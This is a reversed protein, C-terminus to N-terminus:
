QPLFALRGVSPPQLPGTVYRIANKYARTKDSALWTPIALRVAQGHEWKFTEPPFGAHVEISGHPEITALPPNAFEGYIHDGKNQVRKWATGDYQEFFAPPFCVVQQKLSQGCSPMVIPSDLDNVITVEISVVRAEGVKNVAMDHSQDAEQGAPWYSPVHVFVGVSAVILLLAAFINM